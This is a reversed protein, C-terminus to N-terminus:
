NVLLNDILRVGEIFAATLAVNKEFSDKAVAPRLDAANCIEIYDIKDFGSNLIISACNYSPSFNSQNSTGSILRIKELGFVM